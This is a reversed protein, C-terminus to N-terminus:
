FITKWKSIQKPHLDHKQALESLTKREQLAALVIRLRLEVSFTRRKQKITM